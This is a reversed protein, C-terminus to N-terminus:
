CQDGNTRSVVMMMVTRSEALVQQLDRGSTALRLNTLPVQEISSELIMGSSPELNESDYYEPHQHFRRAADADVVKRIQTRFGKFEGEEKIVLYLLTKEGREIQDNIRTIWSEPIRRGFKGFLTYGNQMIVENHAEIVDIRRKGTVV